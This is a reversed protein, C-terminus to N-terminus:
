CLGMEVLKCSLRSAQVRSLNHSLLRSRQRCGTVTQLIRAQLHKAIKELTQACNQSWKLLVVNLEPKCTWHRPRSYTCSKEDHTLSMRSMLDPATDQQVAFMIRWVHYTMCSDNYAICWVHYHIMMCSVDYVIYRVHYMISICWINCTLNL